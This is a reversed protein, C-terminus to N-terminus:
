LNRSENHFKALYKCSAEQDKAQSDERPKTGDQMAMVQIQVIVMFIAETALPVLYANILIGTARSQLGITEFLSVFKSNAIWVIQSEWRRKKTACGGGVVSKLGKGWKWPIKKLIMIPEQMCADEIM